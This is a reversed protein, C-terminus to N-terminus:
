ETKALLLKGLKYLPKNVHLSPVELGIDCQHSFIKSHLGKM